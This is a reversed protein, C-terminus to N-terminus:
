ALALIERAIAARRAYSLRMGKIRKKAHSLTLSDRDFRIGRWCITFTGMRNREVSYGRAQYDYNDALGAPDRELLISLGIDRAVQDRLVSESVNIHPANSVM